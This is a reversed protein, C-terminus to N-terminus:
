IVAGLRVSAQRAATVIPEAVEESTKGTVNLTLDYGRLDYRNRHYIRHFFATREHDSNDVRREAEARSLGRSVILRRVREERPAHLFVSLVDPRGRLILQAAHGVIVASGAAAIREVVEAVLERVRAPPFLRPAPAGKYGLLADAPLEACQSFGEFLRGLFGHDHEAAVIVEEPVGAAEAAWSLIQRDYIPLALRAAVVEAVGRANTGYERSLTIVPYRIM